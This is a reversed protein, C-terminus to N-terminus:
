DSGASVILDADGLERGRWPTAVRMAANRGDHPRAPVVEESRISEGIEFSSSERFPHEGRGACGHDCDGQRGPASAFPQM